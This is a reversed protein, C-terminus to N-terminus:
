VLSKKIQHNREIYITGFFRPRDNEFVLYSDDNIGYGIPVKAKKLGARLMRHERWKSYHASIVCDTVLGLGKKVRIGFLNDKYSVLMTEPMILSGASFGVLPVGSYYVEILVKKVEGKSYIRHYKLTNGSGILILEASQIAKILIEKEVDDGCITEFHTFGAEYFLQRCQEQYKVAGGVRVTLYLIRAGSSLGETAYDIIEKSPPPTGGGLIIKKVKKDMM